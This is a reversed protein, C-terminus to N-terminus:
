IISEKLYTRIMQFLMRMYELMLRRGKGGQTHTSLNSILRAHLFAIKRYSVKITETPQVITYPHRVIYTVGMSRVSRMRSSLGFSQSTASKPHSPTTPQQYAFMSQTSPTPHSFLFCVDFIDAPVICFLQYQKLLFSRSVTIHDQKVV